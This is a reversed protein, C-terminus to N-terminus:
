RKVTVTNVCCIKSRWSTGLFVGLDLPMTAHDELCYDLKSLGSDGPPSGQIPQALQMQDGFLVVNDACRSLGHMCAPEIPLWRM